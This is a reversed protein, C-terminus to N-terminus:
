LSPCSVQERVNLEAVRQMEAEELRRQVQFCFCFFTLVGVCHSTVHRAAHVAQLLPLCSVEILEQAKREARERRM